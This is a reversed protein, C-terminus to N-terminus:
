NLWVRKFHRGFWANGWLIFSQIDAWRIAINQFRYSVTSRLSISAVPYLNDNFHKRKWGVADTVGM